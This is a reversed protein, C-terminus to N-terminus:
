RAIGRIANVFNERNLWYLIAGLSDAAEATRDDGTNRLFRELVGRHLLRLFTRCTRDGRRRLAQPNKRGAPSSPQKLPWLRVLRKNARQNATETTRLEIPFV